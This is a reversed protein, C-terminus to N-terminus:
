NKKVLTANMVKPPQIIIGPEPHNFQVNLGIKSPGNAGGNKEFIQMRGALTTVPQSANRYRTNGHVYSVVVHMGQFIQQPRPNWLSVVRPSDPKM